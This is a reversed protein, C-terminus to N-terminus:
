ELSNMDKGIVNWVIWELGPDHTAGQFNELCKETLGRDVLTLDPLSSRSPVTLM